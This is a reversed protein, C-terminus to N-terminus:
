PKWSAGISPRPPPVSSKTLPMRVRCNPTSHVRGLLARIDALSLADPRAEGDARASTALPGVGSGVLTLTGALAAAGVLALVGCKM